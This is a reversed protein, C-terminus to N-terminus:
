SRQTFPVLRGETGENTELKSINTNTKPEKIKEANNLREPDPVLQVTVPM